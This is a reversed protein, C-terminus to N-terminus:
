FNMWLKFSKPKQTTKIRIAKKYITPSIVYVANMHRPVGGFLLINTAKRPLDSRLTEGQALRLSHGGKIDADKQM